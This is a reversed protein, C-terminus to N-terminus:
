QNQQREDRWLQGEVTSNIETQGRHRGLANEADWPDAIEIFVRRGFRGHNKVAPVWLTRATAVKAAKAKKKEGTVKFHQRREDLPSNLIPNEIVVQKM